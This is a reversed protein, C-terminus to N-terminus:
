VGEGEAQAAAKVVAEAAVLIAHDAPRVKKFEADTYKVARGVPGRCVVEGPYVRVPEQDAYNIILDRDMRFFDNAM